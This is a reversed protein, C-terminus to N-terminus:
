QAFPCETSPEKNMVSAHTARSYGTRLQSVVVQESRNMTKTNTIKGFFPKREKMTSTSIGWKEQQEEQHKNDMWKRLNKRPTSKM